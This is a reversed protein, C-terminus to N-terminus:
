GALWASATRAGETAERWAAIQYEARAKQRRLGYDLV